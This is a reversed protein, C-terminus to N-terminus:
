MIFNSVNSDANPERWSRLEHSHRGGKKCDIWSYTPQYYATGVNGRKRYIFAFVDFWYLICTSAPHFISQASPSFLFRAPDNIEARFSEKVFNVAAWNAFAYQLDAFVEVGWANRTMWWECVSTQSNRRQKAVFFCQTTRNAILRDITESSKNAM